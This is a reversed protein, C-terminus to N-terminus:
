FLFTIHINNPHIKENLFYQIVLKKMHCEFRVVKRVAIEDILFSIEDFFCQTVINKIHLKAKQWLFVILNFYM